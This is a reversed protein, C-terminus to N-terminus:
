SATTGYKSLDIGDEAAKTVGEQLAKLKDQFRDSDYVVKRQEKTLGNLWARAIKATTNELHMVVQVDIAVDRTGGKRGMKRKGIRLTGDFRKRREALKLDGPVSSTGTEVVWQIGRIRVYTDLDSDVDDILFTERDGTFLDTYTVSGDDEDIDVTFRKVKDSM